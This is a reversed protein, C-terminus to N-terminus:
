EESSEPSPELYRSAKQMVGVGQGRHLLVRRLKSPTCPSGEDDDNNDRRPKASSLPLSPPSPPSLSSVPLYVDVGPTRRGGTTAGKQKTFGSRARIREAETVAFRHRVTRQASRLPIEVPFRSLNSRDFISFARSVPMKKKKKIEQFEM